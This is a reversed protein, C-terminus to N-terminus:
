RNALSMLPRNYTAILSQMPDLGNFFAASDVGDRGSLGTAERVTKLAAKGVEATWRPFGIQCVRVDVEETYLGLFKSRRETGIIDIYNGSPNAMKFGYRHLIKQLERYTISYSKNDLQRTKDRLYKSIFKVEPDSEGSKLLQKYRAYKKLKNDAIEVTFDEFETESVSPCRDFRYLIFLVSLFATRKNADYFPHNKILGFFLTAAIDYKDTWKLSGDYSVYQRDVASM